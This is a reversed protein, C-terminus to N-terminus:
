DVKKLNMCRKIEAADLMACLRSIKSDRFSIKLKHYNENFKGNEEHSMIFYLQDLMINVDAHEEAIACIAADKEEESCRKYKLIAKTLEAMEEIVMDLQTNKGWLDLASQCIYDAVM